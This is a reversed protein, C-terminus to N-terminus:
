HPDEVTAFPQYKARFNAVAKVADMEDKYTGLSYNKGEHYVRAWWRDVQTHKSVGRYKSTGGRAPVNQGNQAKTVVRLNERRNDLKDRNIHDVCWGDGRVLGMIERHMKEKKGDATHRQAYGASHRHWKYQALADYDSDDVLAELGNPLPICKM